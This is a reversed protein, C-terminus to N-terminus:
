SSSPPGTARLRVPLGAGARATLRAITEAAGGGSNGTRRNGTGTGGTGSRSAATM